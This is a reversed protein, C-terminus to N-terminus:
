FHGGIPTYLVGLLCPLMEEKPGFYTAEKAATFISVFEGVPFHRAFITWARM